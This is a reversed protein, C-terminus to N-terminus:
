REWRRPSCCWPSRSVNRGSWFAPSALVLQTPVPLLHLNILGILVAVGIYGFSYVIDVAWQAINGLLDSM